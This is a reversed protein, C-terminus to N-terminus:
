GGVTIQIHTLAVNGAVWQGFQFARAWDPRKAMYCLAMYYICLRNWQVWLHCSCIMM